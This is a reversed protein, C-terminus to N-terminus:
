NYYNIKLVIGQNKQQAAHLPQDGVEAALAIVRDYFMLIEDVAEKSDKDVDMSNDKSPSPANANNTNPTKPAPFVNKTEFTDPVLLVTNSSEKKRIEFTANKTCMVAEETSNGKIFIKDSSNLLAEGLDGDIEFLRYKGDANETNLGRDDFDNKFRLVHKTKINAM